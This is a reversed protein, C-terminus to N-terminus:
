EFQEDDACQLCQDLDSSQSQEGLSQDAQKGASSFVIIEDIAKELHDSRGDGLGHAPYRGLEDGVLVHTQRTEEDQEPYPYCQDIGLTIDAVRLVQGTNGVSRLQVPAAFTTIRRVTEFIRGYSLQISYQNGFGLTTPEVGAPRM